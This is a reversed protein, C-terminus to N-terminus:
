ACAVGSSLSGQDFAITIKHNAADPTIKIGPGAQFLFNGSKNVGQGNIFMILGDCISPLANAPLSGLEGAGLSPAITFTQGNQQILMNYGASLRIDGGVYSPDGSQPIVELSNVKLGITRDVLTPDIPATGNFVLLTSSPLALLAAVGVTIRGYLVYSGSYNPDSLSLVYQQSNGTTTLPINVSLTNSGETFYISWATPNVPHSGYGASTPGVIAALQMSSTVPVRSHIRADLLITSPLLTGDVSLPISQDDIPYLRGANEQLFEM